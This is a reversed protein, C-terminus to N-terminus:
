KALLTVSWCLRSVLLTSQGASDSVLLTSQGTYLRSVLLTSQSASDVSWCAPGNLETCKRLSFIYVANNKKDHLKNLISITQTRPSFPHTGYPNFQTSPPHFHLAPIPYFLTLNSPHGSPPRPRYLCSPPPQEVIRSLYSPASLM